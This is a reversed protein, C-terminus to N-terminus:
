RVVIPSRSKLREAGSDKSNEAEPSFFFDTKKVVKFRQTVGIQEPGMQEYKLSEM